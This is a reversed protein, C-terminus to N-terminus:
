IGFRFYQIIIIMMLLGAIKSLLTEGFCHFIEPAFPIELHLTGKGLSRLSHSTNTRESYNQTQQDVRTDDSKAFVGLLVM